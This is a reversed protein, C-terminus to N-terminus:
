SCLVDEFALNSTGLRATGRARAWILHSNRAYFCTYSNSFTSLPFFFKTMTEPYLMETKQRNTQKNVQRAVMRGDEPM